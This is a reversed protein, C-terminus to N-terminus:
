ALAAGLLAARHPLAPKVLLLDHPEEPLVFGTAERHAREHLAVAHGALREVAPALLVAPEGFVLGLPQFAQLPLIGPELGQDRLPIELDLHESLDV